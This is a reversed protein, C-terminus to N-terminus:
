TRSAAEAFYATDEPHQAWGAKGRWDIQRAVM